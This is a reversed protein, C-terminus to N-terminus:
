QYSLTFNAISQFEGATVTGGDGKLYAAFSLTNNGNQLTQAATESGLTLLKGAGDTLAISAGTATGSVGLRGNSGEPGTFTAKVTNKTDLACSELNVVFAKPTSQGSDALAAINVQGLDVTQETSEAAISCPAEIISGNFKVLGNGADAAYAAGSLMLSTALSIVTKNLKMVNVMKTLPYLSEMSSPFFHAGKKNIIKKEIFLNTSLFLDITRM